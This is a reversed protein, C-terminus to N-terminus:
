STTTCCAPRSTTTAARGAATPAIERGATRERLLDPPHLDGRGQLSGHVLVARRQLGGQGRDTHYIDIDIVHRALPDFLDCWRRTAPACTSSCRAASSTTSTTTTRSSRRRVRTIPEGRPRRLDRRLAALRVRRHDRPPRAFSDAGDVAERPLAELRTGPRRPATDPLDPIAGSAAYWEPAVPRPGASPGLRARDGVASTGRASTSGSPTRRRSAARSSSCTASSSPSCGRAALTRGDGRDGQPVAALVRPGGRDSQGARARSPCSPVPVSAPHRGARREAGPLRSVRVAGPWPPQRPEQEALERRRQLGPLDRSEGTRPRSRGAARAADLHDMSGGPARLGVELSLDRFLISGPDGLDWLGGPHRARNPNHVTLRMRVLGTGAFFCFGPSSDAPSVARFTGELRVTARVPGPAELAVHEIRPRPKGDRPDTLVIRASEEDLLDGGGGDVRFLTSSASRGVHFVMPGTDIVILQAIRPGPATAVAIVVSTPPLHVTWPSEGGEVAGLLFDLLLWKVSGDSWRALPPRCTLRVGARDLLTLSRSRGVRGKPFPLGGHDAPLLASARPCEIGLPM